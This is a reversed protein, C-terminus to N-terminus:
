RLRIGWPGQGVRFADSPQFSPAKARLTDPDACESIIAVDLAMAMLSPLGLLLEM